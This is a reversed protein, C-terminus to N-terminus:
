AWKPTLFTLYHLTDCEPDCEEAERPFDIGSVQLPSNPRYDCRPNLLFLATKDQGHFVPGARYGGCPAQPNMPTQGVLGCTNQPSPSPMQGHGEHCETPPAEPTRPRLGEALPQITGTHGPPLRTQMAPLLDSGNGTCAGAPSGKTM